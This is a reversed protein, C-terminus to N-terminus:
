GCSLNPNPLLCSQSYRNTCPHLSWQLALLVGHFHFYEHWETMDLEKRGWLSYVALSRQGHFEGPLFVATPQWKLRRCQLCIIQWTFWWPVLPIPEVALSTFVGYEKKFGERIHLFLQRSGSPSSFGFHRTGLIWAFIWNKQILPPFVVRKAYFEPIVECKSPLAYSLGDARQSLTPLRKELRCFASLNEAETAPPWLLLWRGTSPPTYFHRKCFVKGLHM